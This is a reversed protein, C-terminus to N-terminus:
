NIPTRSVPLWHRRPDDFRQRLEPRLMSLSRGEPSYSAFLPATATRLPTTLASPLLAYATRVLLELGSRGRGSMRITALAERASNTLRGARALTALMVSHYAPYGAMLEDAGQGDLTVTVGSQQVLRMVNYQSYQSTSHFPEDMQAVLAPLLGGDGTLAIGDGRARDVLQRAIEALAPQDGALPVPVAPVRSRKENAPMSM